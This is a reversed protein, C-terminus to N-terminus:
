CFWWLQKPDRAVKEVTEEKLAKLLPQNKRGEM